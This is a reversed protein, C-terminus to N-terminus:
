INEAEIEDLISEFRLKCVLTRIAATMLPPCSAEVCKKTNDSFEDQLNAELSKCFKSYLEETNKFQMLVDLESMTLVRKLLTIMILRAIHEKSYKKKESPAILKIKVYNNIMTATAAMEGPKLLPAVADQLIILVQDMYLAVAPLEDWRPCHYINSQTNLM